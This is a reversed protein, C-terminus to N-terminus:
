IASLSGVIPSLYSTITAVNPATTVISGIIADFSGAVIAVASTSVDATINGIIQGITSSIIGIPSSAGVNIGGTIAGLTSSIVGIVEPFLYVTEIGMDEGARFLRATFFTSPGTYEFAGNAQLFLTGEAPPTEVQVYLEVTEDGSDLDDIIIGPGNTGTATTASIVSGLIGFGGFDFVQAGSHLSAGYRQTSM